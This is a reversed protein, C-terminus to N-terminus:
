LLHQLHLLHEGFTNRLEALASSDSPYNTIKFDVMMQRDDCEDLADVTIVM